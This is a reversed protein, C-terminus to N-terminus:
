KGTSGFGGNRKISIDDERVKYYKLFVGQVFREGKKIVIDYDGYNVIPIIIHGQNEAYYYDSDIIGVTNALFLQYKIGFSSRPYINLVYNNEIYCRIGTPVKKLEGKKIVLDFPCVFDYGASGITARKPLIIDDYIKKDSINSDNVFQDFSIKEFIGIQM